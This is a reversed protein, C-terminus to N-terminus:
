RFRSRILGSIKGSLFSVVEHYFDIVSPSWL